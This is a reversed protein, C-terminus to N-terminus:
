DDEQFVKYEYQAPCDHVQGCSDEFRIYGARLDPFVDWHIQKRQNLMQNIKPGESGTNRGETRADNQSDVRRRRERITELQRGAPNQNEYHKRM